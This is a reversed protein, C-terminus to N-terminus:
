RAFNRLDKVLKVNLKIHKQRPLHNNPNPYVDIYEEYTHTRRFYEEFLANGYEDFTSWTMFHVKRVLVTIELMDAMINYVPNPGNPNYPYPGFDYDRVARKIADHNNLDVNARWAQVDHIQGVIPGTSATQPPGPLSQPTATPAVLEATLAQSPVPPVTTSTVPTININNGDSSGLINTNGPGRFTSTEPTIGINNGDSPGLINANGPGRFTGLDTNSAMM